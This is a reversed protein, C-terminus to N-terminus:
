SNFLSFCSPFNFWKNTKREAMNNEQATFTLCSKSINLHQKTAQNLPDAWFNAPQTKIWSFPTRRFRKDKSKSVQKDM